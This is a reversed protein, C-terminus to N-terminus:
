GRNAPSEGAPIAALKAESCWIGAHAALVPSGGGTPTSTVADDQMASQPPSRLVVLSSACITGPCTSCIPLFRCIDIKDFQRGSNADYSSVGHGPGSGGEDFYADTKLDVAIQRGLESLEEERVAM